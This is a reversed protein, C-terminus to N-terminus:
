GIVPTTFQGRTAQAIVPRGSTNKVAGIGTSEIAARAHASLSADTSTPTSPYPADPM